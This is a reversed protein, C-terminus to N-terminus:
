NHAHQTKSVNRWFTAFNPDSLPELVPQNYENAENVAVVKRDSLILPAFQRYVPAADM